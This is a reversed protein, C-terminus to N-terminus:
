EYHCYIFFCLCKFRIVYIIVIPSRQSAESWICVFLSDEFLAKMDM